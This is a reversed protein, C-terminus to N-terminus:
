EEREPESSSGCAKLCALRLHTWYRRPLKMILGPPVGKKGSGDDAVYAALCCQYAHTMEPLVVEGKEAKFTKNFTREVIQFDKATLDEFDFILNDYSRGDFEIAPSFKLRLPRNPQEIVPEYYSDSSPGPDIQPDPGASREQNQLLSTDM